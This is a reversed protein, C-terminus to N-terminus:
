GDAEKNHTDTKYLSDYLRSYFKYLEQRNGMEYFQALNYLSNTTENHLKGNVLFKLNLDRENKVHSLVDKEDVREIWTATDTLESIMRRSKYAVDAKQIFFQTFDKKMCEECSSFLKQESAIRGNIANLAKEKNTM